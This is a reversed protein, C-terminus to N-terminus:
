RSTPHQFYPKMELLYGRAKLLAELGTKIVKGDVESNKAESVAAFQGAYYWITDLSNQRRM